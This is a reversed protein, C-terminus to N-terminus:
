FIVITTTVYVHIKGKSFLDKAPPVNLHVNPKALVRNEDHLTFTVFKTFKHLCFVFNQLKM